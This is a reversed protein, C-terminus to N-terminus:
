VRELEEKTGFLGWPRILLMILLLVFPAIDSMLPSVYIIALIEGAAVMAAGPLVGRFSDLGGVVAVSFAKLGLIAINPDLRVNSAYLIGAFAGTFTALGWSVAFVWNYDIGRLAALLPKEAAARMQIGFKTFKIFLLFALFVTAAGMVTLIDFTSLVIKSLIQIPENKIGMATLPYRTRSTWLLISAGRILIGLGITVLVAAFIPHGAMPRISLRYILIGFLGCILLTIPIILYSLMPFSTALTFFFYGGLMMMEGHALNLLRSARYIIVYGIGFLSYLATLVVINALTQV